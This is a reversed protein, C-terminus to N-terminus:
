NGHELKTTASHAIYVKRMEKLENIVKMWYAYGNDGDDLGLQFLTQILHKFEADTMM